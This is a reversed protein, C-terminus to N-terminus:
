LNMTPLPRCTSGSLAVGNKDFSVRQIRIIFSILTVARRLISQNLVAIRVLDRNNLLLM